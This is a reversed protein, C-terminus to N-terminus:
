LERTGECPAVHTRLAVLTLRVLLVSVLEIVSKLGFGSVRTKRSQKM